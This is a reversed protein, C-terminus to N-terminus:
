GSRRTPLIAEAGARVAVGDALNIEAVRHLQELPVFAAFTAAQEIATAVVDAPYVSLVDNRALLYHYALPEQGHPRWMAPAKLKALCAEGVQANLSGRCLETKWIRIPAEQYRVIQM